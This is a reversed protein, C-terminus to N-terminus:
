AIKRTVIIFGRPISIVEGVQDDDGITGAIAVYWDEDKILWGRTICLSPENVKNFEQWGGESIADFWRVEVFPWKHKPKGTPKHM